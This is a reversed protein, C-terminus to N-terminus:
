LPKEKTPQPGFHPLDPNLPGVGLRLPCQCVTRSAPPTVAAPAESSRTSLWWPLWCGARPGRPGPREGPGPGRRGEGEVRHRRSGWRAGGEGGRPAESAQGVEPVTRRQTGARRGALRSGTSGVKGGETEPAGGGRGGWLAPEKGRVADGVTLFGVRTQAGRQIGAREHRVGVGRPPRPPLREGYGISDLGLLPRLDSPDNLRDTTIHPAAACGLHESGALAPSSGAGGRASRAASRPDRCAAARAAPATPAGPGRPDQSGPLSPRPRSGTCSGM